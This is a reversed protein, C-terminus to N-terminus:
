LEVIYGASRLSMAAVTLSPNMAASTVLTSADTMPKWSFHNGM